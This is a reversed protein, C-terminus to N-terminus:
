RKIFKRSALGESTKVKLIYMGSPLDSINIESKDEFFNSSMIRAGLMNYIALTKQGSVAINISLYDLAPNPYVMMKSSPDIQEVSNPKTKLEFVCGGMNVFLARDSYKDYYGGSVDPVNWDMYLNESEGTSADIHKVGGEGYIFVDKNNIALIGYSYEWLEEEIYSYIKTMQASSDDWSYVDGKLTLIFFINGDNSWIYEVSGGDLALSYLDLLESGNYRLLKNYIAENGSSASALVLIDSESKAYVANFNVDQREAIKVHTNAGDWLYLHAKNDDNRRESTCVYIKDEMLAFTKSVYTMTTAFFDFSSSTENWVYSKSSMSHAVFATGDSKKIGHLRGTLNDVPQDVYSWSNGDFYLPYSDYTGAWIRGELLFLGDFKFNYDYFIEDLSFNQGFISLGFFIGFLFLALKKM